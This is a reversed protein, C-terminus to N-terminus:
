FSVSLSLNPLPVSIQAFADEQVAYTEDYTYLYFWLNRLGLLNVVQLRLDYYASTTAGIQLEHLAINAGELPEGTEASTIKGALIGPSPSVDQGPSLAPLLLLLSVSLLSVTSATPGTRSAGEALPPSPSM